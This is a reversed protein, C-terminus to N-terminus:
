FEFNAIWLEFNQERDETMQRRVERREQRGGVREKIAM